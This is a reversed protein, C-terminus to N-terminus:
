RKRLALITLDDYQEDEIIHAYSNVQSEEATELPHGFYSSYQDFHVKLFEDIKKDINVRHGSGASSDPYLRFVKEVAILGLVTDEVSGSCSAFDFTLKEEPIPNHYKELQYKQRNFIADLLDHIRPIGFEENDSGKLHTGGHEANEALGPEDCKVVQLQENRFYRKAEEIGDTFLLLTDGKNLKMSVQKFGAQMEVMMSPFVGAAPAEPLKTQTMKGQQNNYIHVLNDGANCYYGTGSKVNILAVILAAFRGKFGREELMDNIQYVLKDIKLGPDKITWNRFYSSFITAVEVMILAAPIGKGAVDCKIVAYHENDLKKFDFYDGSVGKAGEYYGYIEVNDNEESGTSGKKGADDKELPIFMKQVEKGFILDKNAAAAKVLAKTMDNVTTALAGIEDRSGIKIHHDKLEEYDETDRIIAVGAALKKIPTITISAMIVAGIIGLIVAVLAILGTRVILERRSQDIQQIINQTSVNLRIMGRYYIDDGRSRYVIPKYFTYLPLLQEPDFEPFSGINSGIAKLETSIRTNLKSVANQLEELKSAAEADTRLSYRRAEATYEELQPLLDKVKETARLNIEETLKEAMPSIEDKIQSTRLRFEGELIKSAIDPDNSGWIYSYKEKDVEGQATITAYQAEDMAAIQEPLLGMEITNQLPLYTEAGSSISGLMVKVRQNLGEALSITQTDIMFYSLPLSVMAVVLIVLITILMVFKLRLGFGRQKLEKMRKEKRLLGPQGRAISIVEAKLMQGERVLVSLKRLALLFLLALFIVILWVGLQSVTFFYFPSRARQWSSTYKLSFDGFKVAGLSQFSLRSASFYLGRLPHVIGLRYSGEEIEPLKIRDILRDTRVRYINDELSFHYDYPEKGNRDLIMERILGGEAFGRGHILLNVNGLIDKKSDVYTIYTVPIYKNLKFVLTSPKGVNGALDIASVTFTWLGNDRNQYSAATDISQVVPPLPEPRAAQVPIKGTESDLFKLKYTYGSLKENVPPIWSLAFSNSLLFGEGDVEPTVIEVVTPPLTDRTFAISDPESWNGAYDNASLLFYWTGDRDANLTVSQIDSLFKLEKSVAAYPNRSWAYSFGALGSSDHLINWRVTVSDQRSPRDPDFNVARPTPSEVYQDPELYVLSSSGQLRNEWFLYLSGGLQVPHAFSSSGKLNSLDKHVWRFGKKEAIFIHNEGRRNDFWILYVHDRFHTIRPFHCASFGDTIREPQEIFEGERDIEGYYIQPPQSSYQREWAIALKGELSLLFPRQNSFVTAAELRGDLTEDFALPTNDGWSRGGDRSEKLYLQYSLEQDSSLGQFILYDRDLHVAHHPLFNMFLDQNDVLVKFGSWISGNASVSYYLALFDETEQTVFLLLNGSASVYLSPGVATTNSRVTSLTTFSRGGDTSALIETTNESSTVAVLIRGSQDVTLSFIPTEQKFYTYPGAFRSNKVWERSDKSTLLSLYVDGGGEEAPVFDQWVAAILNGGSTTAPFRAGSEVLAHPDGWYLSQSFLNAAAFFLYLLIVVPLNNKLMHGM